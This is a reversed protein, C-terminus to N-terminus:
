TLKVIALMILLVGVSNGLIWKILEVKLNALDIKTVLNHYGSEQSRQVAYVIAEATKSPLKYKDKLIGIVAHTDMQTETQIEIKAM